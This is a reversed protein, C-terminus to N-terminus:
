CGTCIRDFLKCAKDVTDQACDFLCEDFEAQAQEIMMRLKMIREDVEDHSCQCTGDAMSTILEKIGNILNCLYLFKKTKRAIEQSSADYTIYTISHVGDPFSNCVPVETQAADSINQPNICFCNTEDTGGSTLPQPMSATLDGSLTVTTTLGNYEVGYNVQTIVITDTTGYKIQASWGTIATSGNISLVLLSMTTAIDTVFVTSGLVLSNIDVVIIGNTGGTLEFEVFSKTGPKWNLDLNTMANGDPCIWNFRTHDIDRKTPNDLYGYGDICNAPLSENYECTTDCFNINSCDDSICATFDLVLNM